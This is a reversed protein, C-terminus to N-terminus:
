IRLARQIIYKYSLHGCLPQRDESYNHQYSLVSTHSIVQYYRTLLRYKRAFANSIDEDEVEDAILYETGENSSVDRIVTYDQRTNTFKVQQTKEINHVPAYCVYNYGVVLLFCLCIFFITVRM